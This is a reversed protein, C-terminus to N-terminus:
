RSDSHRGPREFSDGYNYRPNRDFNNGVVIVNSSGEILLDHDYGMWFTNGTLVVGRADKVHVNVRVDSFVNGSLVVHGEATRGHGTRRELGADYGGGLIRVNASRPSRSNHQITCGTIAVEAVSGGTSDLLINASGPYAPSMNSEIDCGSVQINRVEGARSVIGGQDCYSIHCGVINIQHLNVNDLFIGAGGNRYIHCNEVIVNRNRKVLRIGHRVNRILCQSVILQLTGEAEIGDADPGAATIELGRVVPMREDMWTVESVSPPDATGEHTGIFRIVPGQGDMVIRATGEGVLSVPGSRRLDVVLPKTIRYTGAPFVITGGRNIAQQIPRTDDAAGDGRAGWGAVTRLPRGSRVVRRERGRQDAFSALVSGLVVACALALAGNKVLMM